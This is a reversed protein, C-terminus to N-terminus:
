IIRRFLAKLLFFFHPGQKQNSTTHYVCICCEIKFGSKLIPYSRPFPGEEEVREAHMQGVLFEKQMGEGTQPCLVQDTYHQLLAQGGFQIRGYQGTELLISVQICFIEQKSMPIELSFPSIEDRRRRYFPELSPPSNVYPGM